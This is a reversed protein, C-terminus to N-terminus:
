EVVTIPVYIQWGGLWRAALTKSLVSVCRRRDNKRRSKNDTYGQQVREEKKAIAHLLLATRQIWAVNDCSQTDFSAEVVSAKAHKIGSWDGHM